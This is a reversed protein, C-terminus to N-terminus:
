LPAKIDNPIGYDTFDGIDQLTKGDPYTIVRVSHALLFSTKDVFLQTQAKGGALDFAIRLVYCQAQGCAADPGLRATPLAAIAAASFEAMAGTDVAVPALPTGPRAAVKTWTGGPSPSQSYLTSGITIFRSVRGSGRDTLLTDRGDPAQWSNTLIINQPGAAPSAAGSSELTGTEAYSSKWSTKSTMAARMKEAITAASPPTPTVAGSSPASTATGSSCATLAVLAVM